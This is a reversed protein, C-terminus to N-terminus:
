ARSSRPRRRGGPLPRRHAERPVERGRGVDGHQQRAARLRPGRGARPHVRGPLRPRAARDRDAGVRGEQRAPRQRGARRPAADQDEGRLQAAVPARAAEQGRAHKPNGMREHFIIRGAEWYPPISDLLTILNSPGSSPSRRRTSTRRSPSAPSRRTAATPAAWSRRRAEPRRHGPRRPVQRGVHPRGADQRGVAQQRREPVEQRLRDLRPLEAAPRRLRPQRPVARPQQLGLQRAGVPRRAPLRDLPLNKAPSARRCRSTPRSRSATRRRTASRGEDGGHARAPHARAVKYQSAHAEEDQPRLPLARGPRHRELGHDALRRDDATSSGLDITRARSSRRSSSTTPRGAGQRPLLRADPRGRLVTAVLEDTAESFIASGFDVRKM